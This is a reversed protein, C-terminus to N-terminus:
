ACFIYCKELDQDRNIWDVSEWGIENLHMTINDQWGHMPRALPRRGEEMSGWLLGKLIETRRYVQWM